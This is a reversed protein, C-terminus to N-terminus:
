ELYACHSAGIRVKAYGAWNVGWHYVAWCELPGYETEDVTGGICDVRSETVRKCRAGYETCERDKECIRREYAQTWAKAKYVSLHWQFAQATGALALVLAVAGAVLLVRNRM